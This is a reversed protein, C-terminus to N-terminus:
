RRDGIVGEVIVSGVKWRLVGRRVIEWRFGEFGSWQLKRTERQFVGSNMEMSPPFGVEMVVGEAALDRIAL